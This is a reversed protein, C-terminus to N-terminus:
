GGDAVELRHRSTTAVVPHEDLCLRELERRADPDDGLGEAVAARVQWAPDSAAAIIHRRSVETAYLALLEVAARRVDAELDGLLAVVLPEASPERLRALAQLIPLHTDAAHERYVDILRPAVALGDMALLTEVLLVVPAGPRGLQRLLIASARATHRRGVVAIAARRVDDDRDELAPELLDIVDIEHQEGLAEVALRRIERDDSGLCDVLFSLQDPHPGARMVRLMAILVAPERRPVSLLAPSTLAPDFATIAEQAATRVAPDPDLLCETLAAIAVDAHIQAVARVARERVGEADDHLREILGDALGDLRLAGVCECAFARVASSGDALGASLADRAPAGIGLVHFQLLSRLPAQRAAAVLTGYLPELQLLRVLMAAAEAVDVGDGGDPVERGLVAALRDRVADAHALRTWAALDWLPDATPHRRLADGLARLPAAFAADDRTALMAEALHEIARLSRIKGLADIAPDWADPDALVSALPDAARPDGIEGLAHIAAYRVWPDDDLLVVLPEVAIAARLHGLSEAATQVINVDEYSLLRVLHPVAERTRTKGLVSAAFMVIEPDPDDLARVLSPVSRQGGKALADMAANRRIADVHDGIARVLLDPDAARAAAEIGRARGARDREELANLIASSISDGDAQRATPRPDSHTV